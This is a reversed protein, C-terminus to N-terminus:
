DSDPRHKLLERMQTAWTMRHIVRKKELGGNVIEAKTLKSLVEWNDGFIYTANDTRNAELVYLNKREFGYVLYGNFGGQGAAVFEPHHSMILDIRAKIVSRKSKSVSNIVKKLEEGVHEYLRKGIPFIQWNVKVRKVSALPSTTYYITAEGFLELLLNLTHKIRGHQEALNLMEPSTVILAGTKDRRVELEVSPPPIIKRQYCERPVDVTKSMEEGNYTTWTWERQYFRTIKPLDRLLLYSGYANFRSVPGIGKPLLVQGEKVPLGFGIQKLLKERNPLDAVYFRFAEGEGITTLYNAITRVRKKTITM